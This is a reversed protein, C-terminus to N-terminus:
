WRITQGRQLAKWCDSATAFLGSFFFFFFLIGYREAGIGTVPSIDGVPGRAASSGHIPPQEFGSARKLDLFNAAYSVSSTYVGRSLYVCMCITM